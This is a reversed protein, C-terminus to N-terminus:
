RGPGRGCHRGRGGTRGRQPSLSGPRTACRAAAAEAESEQAAVAAEAKAKRDKRRDSLKAELAVTQRVARMMNIVVPGVQPAAALKEDISVAAMAQRMDKVFEMGCEAMERLLRSHREAMEVDPDGAPGDEMYKSLMENM